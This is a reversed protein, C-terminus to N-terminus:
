EVIVEGTEVDSSLVPVPSSHPLWPGTHGQGLALAAAVDVPYRTVLQEDLQGARYYLGRLMEVSMGQSYDLVMVHEVTVFRLEVDDAPLEVVDVPLQVRATREVWAHWLRHEGTLGVAAVVADPAIPLGHVLEVTVHAPAVLDLRMALALATTFCDGGTVPSM